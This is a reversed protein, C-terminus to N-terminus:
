ALALLTLLMKVPLSLLSKLLRKLLVVEVWQFMNKIWNSEFKNVRKDGDAASRATIFGPNVNNVRIGKKVYKIAANRCYNDLATKTNTYYAYDSFAKQGGFSSVNVVSGKSEELYPMALRTLTTISKLNINFLYDFNDMDHDNHNNKQQPIGGSNNVLIDIKGFKSVTKEILNKLTNDNDIAGEVVLIDEDSVGSHLMLRVTLKLDNEESGHITVKAGEQGFLLATAQDIGCNSCTVIVVKGTFRAM